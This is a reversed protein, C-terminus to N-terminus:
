APEGKPEPWIHPGKHGPLHICRSGMMPANCDGPRGAPTIREMGAVAEGHLRKLEEERM